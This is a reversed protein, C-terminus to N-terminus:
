MESSLLAVTGFSLVGNPRGNNYHNYNPQHNQTLKFHGLISITKFKHM